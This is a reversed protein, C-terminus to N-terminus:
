IKNNRFISKSDCSFAYLEYSIENTRLQVTIIKRNESIKQCKKKQLVLFFCFTHSRLDKYLAFTWMMKWIIFMLGPFVYESKPRSVDFHWDICWLNVFSIIEIFDIRKLCNRLKWYIWKLYQFNESFSIEIDSVFDVHVLLIWVNWWFIYIEIKWNVRGWCCRLFMHSSSSSTRWARPLIKYVNRNWVAAPFAFLNIVRPQFFSSLFLPFNAVHTSAAFIRGLVLNTWPSSLSFIEETNLTNESQYTPLKLARIYFFQNTLILLCIKLCWFHRTILLAATIQFDYQITTSIQIIAIKEMKLVEDERFPDYFIKVQPPSKSFSFSM